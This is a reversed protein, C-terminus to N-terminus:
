GESVLRRIRTSSILEDALVTPQVIECAIGSEECLEALKGTDGERNRGFFFNPGEVIAAVQLQDLIIQQFFERYTLGLLSRDTPWAIMCDVGLEDLLEAKRQTWTLPPPALEPRLLRVPHPDFTFVVAPGNVRIAWDRLRAIIQAHGRHVGDFNGLTIACGALSHDIQEIHRILKM